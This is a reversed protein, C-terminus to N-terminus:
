MRSPKVFGDEFFEVTYRALGFQVIKIQSIDPVATQVSMTQGAFDIGRLVGIGLCRSRADCLGVQLGLLEPACCLRVIPPYPLNYRAKLAPSLESIIELERVQSIQRETIVLYGEWEKLKEAWLLPESCVPIEIPEGSRFFCRDTVVSAFPIQQVPSEPRLYPKLSDERLHQRTAKDTYVAGYLVPLREVIWPPATRVLHESEDKRQRLIILDPQVLDMKASKLLRAADGLNMGTTNIIVGDASDLGCRLLHSIGALFQTMVQSPSHAGIFYLHTAPREALLVLPEATILLGLSGAPGIDSQGLDCDLVAPVLGASRLRNALYNCLFSKGTDMGGIVMVKRLKQDIIRQAVRDWEAPITSETLEEMRAQIGHPLFRFTGATRFECPCRKGMPISFERSVRHVYGVVDAEGALLQVTCPGSFLFIQGPRADRQETM